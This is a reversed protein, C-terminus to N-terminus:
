WDESLRGSAVVLLMNLDGSMGTGIWDAFIFPETVNEGDVFVSQTGDSALPSLVIDTQHALRVLSEEFDAPTGYQLAKWALSRYMAGTDLYTFQLKSAVQRAVTSKGAGAPGDIAVIIPM